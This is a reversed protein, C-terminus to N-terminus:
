YCAKILPHLALCGARGTIWRCLGLLSSVGEKRTDSSSQSVPLHVSVSTSGFYVPAAWQFQLVQRWVHSNGCVSSHIDSLKFDGTNGKFVGKGSAKICACSSTNTHRDIVCLCVCVCYQVTCYKINQKHKHSEETMRFALHLYALKGSGIILKLFLHASRLSCEFLSYISLAISLPLPSNLEGGVYSSISRLLPM